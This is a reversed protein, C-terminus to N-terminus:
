LKHEVLAVGLANLQKGTIRGAKWQRYAYATLDGADGSMQAIEDFVDWFETPPLYIPATPDHLITSTIAAHEAQSIKGARLATDTADLWDANTKPTVEEDLAQEDLPFLARPTEGSGAPMTACGCILLTLVIAVAIPKLKGEM